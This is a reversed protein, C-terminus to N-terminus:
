ELGAAWGEYSLTWAASSFANMIASVLWSVLALSVGGFALLLGVGGPGPDASSLRAMMQAWGLGTVLLSGIRLPMAVLSRLTALLVALTVVALPARRLVRWGRRISDSARLDELAAARFALARMVMIAPGAVLMLALLPASIAMAVFAVLLLDGFQAAPRTAALILGALGGMGVVSSALALLFLPLFLLTDIAIFRGLLGVGARWAQVPRMVIGRAQGAVTLILGGEAVASVLWLTLGVLFVAVVTIVLRGPEAAQQLLGQIDLEAPSWGDLSLRDAAYWTAARWSLNFVLGGMTASLGLLWWSRHRWASRAAIALLKELPM